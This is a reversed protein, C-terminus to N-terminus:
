KEASYARRVVDEFQPPVQSRRMLDDDLQRDSLKDGGDDGGTPSPHGAGRQLPGQRDVAALFSRLTLKFSTATSAGRGLEAVTGLPPEAAPGDGASPSSGSQSRGQAATQPPVGAPERRDPDRRGRHLGTAYAENSQQRRKRTAASSVGVGGAERGAHADERAAASGAEGSKEGAGAGPFRRSGLSRVDLTRRIADQVRGSVGEFQAGKTLSSGRDPDTGALLTHAPVGGPGRVEVGDEGMEPERSRFHAAPLKAPERLVDRRQKRELARAQADRDPVEGSRPQVFVASVLLLVSAALLLISRPVRRPAIREPQWRKGLEMAQNVLVPALRSQPMRRLHIVTTLRDEMGGIRDALRAVEDLNARRRVSAMFIGALSLAAGAASVWFVSRFTTPSARVAAVTLLAALLVLVSGGLYVVHQLRFLNVRRRLLQLRQEVEAVRLAITSM